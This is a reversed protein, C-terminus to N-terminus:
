RVRSAERDLVMTEVEWREGDVKREELEVRTTVFGLGRYTAIAPENFRYVRLDIQQTWHLRWAVDVAGAVLRRGLGRGRHEPAVAVRAIRACLRERELALEVHGVLAGAQAMWSLRTPPSARREDVIAQLQRDDLPHHLAPGGWRVVEREGAFWGRLLPFHAPEFDILTLM